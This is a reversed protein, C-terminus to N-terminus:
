RSCGCHGRRHATVASATVGEIGRKDAFWVAIVHSAIGNDFIAQLERQEWDELRELAKGVSCKKDSTTM